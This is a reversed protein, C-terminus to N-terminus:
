VGAGGRLSALAADAIRVRQRDHWANDGTPDDYDRVRELAKNEPSLGM